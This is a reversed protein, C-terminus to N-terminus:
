KKGGIPPFREISNIRYVVKQCFILALKLKDEKSLPPKTERRTPDPLPLDLGSKPSKEKKKPM